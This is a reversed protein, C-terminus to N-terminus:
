GDPNITFRATEGRLSSAPIAYAKGDLTVAVAKANGLLLKFPPVGTITEVTGASRQGVLLRGRSDSVETWCDDSFQLTVVHEVPPSGAPDAVPEDVVASSEISPSETAVPDADVSNTAAPAKASPQELPIAPEDEGPWMVLALGFVAVVAIVLLGMQALNSSKVQEQKPVHLGPDNSVPELQEYLEVLQDEALGLLKEYARLHGKIFVPAGLAAFDAREIAEVIHVELRLEAAADAHSVSQEDRAARIVESLRTELVIREDTQGNNDSNDAAM